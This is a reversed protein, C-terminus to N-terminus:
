EPHATRSRYGGSVPRARGAPPSRHPHSQDAGREDVAGPPHGTSVARQDDLAALDDLHALLTREAAVDRDHVQGARRHHRPEDIGVDVEGVPAHVQDGLM